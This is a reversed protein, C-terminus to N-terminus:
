GSREDEPSEVFQTYEKWMEKQIELAARYNKLSEQCTTNPQQFIELNVTAETQMRDGRQTFNEGKEQMRHSLEAMEVM